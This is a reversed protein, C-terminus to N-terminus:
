SKWCSFDMATITRLNEIDSQYLAALRAAVEDGPKPMPALSPLRLRERWALRRNRTLSLRALPKLLLSAAPNHLVRYRLSQRDEHSFNYRRGTFPVFSDDVGIFKFIRRMTEHPKEFTSQM